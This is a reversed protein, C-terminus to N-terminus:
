FLQRNDRRFAQTRALAAGLQLRTRVDLEDMLEAIWRRVSRETVGFQGAIASDTAGSMLLSVLADRRPDQQLEGTDTPRIAVSREWVAEFLSVLAEVVVPHRVVTVRVEQGPNYSQPAPLVAAKRDILILKMPVDGLKAQEGHRLFLTLESLREMDFGPHYVARVSVGRTLAQYEPSNEELYAVTPQHTNVYPPRDFAAIETQSHHCLDAMAKSAAERGILVEIGISPAVSEWMHLSMAEAARVAADIEAVRRDRIGKAAEALPLARVRGPSPEIVLGLEQLEGLLAEPDESGNRPLEDLAVDEQRAIQVYLSEAETSVGLAQLM